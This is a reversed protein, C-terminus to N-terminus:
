HTFAYWLGARIDNYRPGRANGEQIL